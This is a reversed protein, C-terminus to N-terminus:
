TLSSSGRMDPYKLSNGIDFHSIKIIEFFSINTIRININYSTYQVAAGNELFFVLAISKHSLRIIIELLM